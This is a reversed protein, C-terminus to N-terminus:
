ETILAINDVGSLRIADMVKILINIETEEPTSIMVQPDSQNKKFNKIQKELNSYNILIKNIKIQGESSLEVLLPEDNKIDLERVIPTTMDITKFDSFETALMFFILLLFVIDILPAINIEVNKNKKIFTKM